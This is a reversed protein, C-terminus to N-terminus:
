FWMITKFTRKFVMQFLSWRGKLSWCEMLGRRVMNGLHEAPSKFPPGSNDRMIGLPPPHVLIDWALIDNLVVTFSNLRPSRSLQFTILASETRSSSPSQSFWCEPPKWGSKPGGKFQETRYESQSTRLTESLTDEIPDVQNGLPTLRETLQVDSRHHKELKPYPIETCGDSLCAGWCWSLSNSGGKFGRAFMVPTTTGSLKLADNQSGDNRDHLIHKLYGLGPLPLLYLPPDHLIFVYRDIWLMDM